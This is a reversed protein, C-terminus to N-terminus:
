SIIIKYNEKFKNIKSLWNKKYDCEKVFKQIRPEIYTLLNRIQNVLASTMKPNKYISNVDKTIESYNMGNILPQRLRQSMLVLEKTANEDIGMKTVQSLNLTIFLGFDYLFENMFKRDASEFIKYSKLHKM